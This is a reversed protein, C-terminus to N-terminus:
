QPLLEVQPVDFRIEFPLKELVVIFSKGDDSSGNEM